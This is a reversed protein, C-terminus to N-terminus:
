KGFRHVERKVVTMTDAEARSIHVYLRCAKNLCYVSPHSRRM